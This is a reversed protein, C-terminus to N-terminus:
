LSSPGVVSQVSRFSGAIFCSARKSSLHVKCGTGLCYSKSKVTSGICMRELLDLPITVFNTNTAPTSFSKNLLFGQKQSQTGVHKERLEARPETGRM